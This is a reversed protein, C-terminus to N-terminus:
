PVCYITGLVPLKIRTSEGMSNARPRQLGGTHMATPAGSGGDGGGGRTIAVPMAAPAPHIIFSSSLSSSSSSGGSEANVAQISAAIENRLFSDEPATFSVLARSLESEDERVSTNVLPFFNVQSIVKVSYIRGSFKRIKIMQNKENIPVVLIGDDALMSLFFEKRSDPCGAGVYIRDYKLAQVAGIVDIDFCNGHVFSLGSLPIISRRESIEVSDMIKHHWQRAREKSYECMERSVEIGHCVGHAGLLCAALCNLYGSGSGVNLFTNGPKMELGELVTAYM